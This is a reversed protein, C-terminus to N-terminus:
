EARSNQTKVTIYGELNEEKLEITSEITNTISKATNELNTYDYNLSISKTISIQKEISEAFTDINEEDIVWAITQTESDYIGGDLQSNENIPYPLTDKITIEAKGAFNNITGELNIEYDVNANKTTIKDPGTKTIISQLSILQRNTDTLIGTSKINTEGITIYFTKYEINDPLEAGEPAEIEILKYTGEALDYSLEENSNLIVDEQMINGELDQVQFKAGVLNSSIYGIIFNQTREEENESLEYGETAEVQVIKYIGRQLTYSIKGQEDTQVYYGINEDQTGIINGESDKAYNGELDTIKYKANSIKEGTRSDTLTLEFKYEQQSILDEVINDPNTEEPETSNGTGTEGSETNEPQTEGMETEDAQIQGSKNIKNANYTKVVFLSMILIIITIVILSIITGLIIRGKESYIKTNKRKNSEQNEM